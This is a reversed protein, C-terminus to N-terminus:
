QLVQFELTDVVADGWFLKIKYQMSWPDPNTEGDDNTTDWITLQTEGQYQETLLHRFVLWVYGTYYQFWKRWIVIKTEENQSSKFVIQVDEGINPRLPSLLLNESLALAPGLNSMESRNGVDDIAKMAFYYNTNPQLGSVTFSDPFGAPKPSPEGGIQTRTSWNQDTIPFRDYRIDYESATGDMWDDGPSTWTLLFDTDTIAVATLDRITAPPQYEQRTTETANNSLGSENPVEDYTKLAFYIQSNSQLGKVIVTELQGAPKPASLNNVMTASGWNQDTIPAQSYRIDYKTAQGSSGDDGPAFWVLAVTSSTPTRAVLETVTAPPITDPGTEIPDPGQPNDEGCNVIALPIVCSIIFLVFHLSRKHHM